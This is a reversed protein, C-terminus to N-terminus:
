RFMISLPSAILVIRFLVLRFSGAESVSSLVNGTGFGDGVASSGVLGFMVNSEDEGDGVASM